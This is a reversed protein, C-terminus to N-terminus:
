RGPVAAEVKRVEAARVWDAPTRRVLEAPIAM